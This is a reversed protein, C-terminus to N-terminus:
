GKRMPIVPPQTNSKFLSSISTRENNGALEMNRHSQLEREIEEPWHKGFTFVDVDITQDPLGEFEALTLLKVGCIRPKPIVFSLVFGPTGVRDWRRLFRLQPVTVELRFSRTRPGPRDLKAEMFWSQCGPFKILLDAVGVFMRHSTKQGEGGMAQAVKIAKLQLDTEQM